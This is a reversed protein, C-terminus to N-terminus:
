CGTESYKEEMINWSRGRLWEQLLQTREIFSRALSSIAYVIWQILDEPGCRKQKVGQSKVRNQESERHDQDTFEAWWIQDRRKM